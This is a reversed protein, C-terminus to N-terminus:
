LPPESKKTVFDTAFGNRFLAKAASRDGPSPSTLLGAGFHSDLECKVKRELAAAPRLACRLAAGRPAAERGAPRAPSTVFYGPLARKIQGKSPTPPHIPKEKGQLAKEGGEGTQLYLDAPILWPLKRAKRCHRIAFGHRNTEEQFRLLVPIYRRISGRLLRDQPSSSSSSATHWLGKRGHFKALKPHNFSVREGWVPDGEKCRLLCNFNAWVEWAALFREASSGPPFSLRIM